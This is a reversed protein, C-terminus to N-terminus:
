NADGGVYNRGLYIEFTWIPQDLRSVVVDRLKVMSQFKTATFDITSRSDAVIIADRGDYSVSQNWLDYQSPLPNFATVTPDHLQFALQAAYNYRTAALFAEPHEAQADSVAAAVEPWGYNAATGDDFGIPAISYNWTSVGILALTMAFHPWLLWRRALIRDGVIALAAYAAINWHLLVGTFMSAITFLTTAVLFITLALSRLLNVFADREQAFPLMALGILFFPGLAVALFALYQLADLPKPNFWHGEPRATFHFRLTVFQESLNWWLVPALIAVIVLAALYPHPTRWLLRLPARVALFAAFGLALLVGNYKTLIALGAFVAALYFLLFQPRGSEWRVTFDVLFLIAVLCLFVLLHDHFAPTTFLSIVPLTAFIAASAWFYHRRDGAGLRSSLQWLVGLSGAFSVWTLLRVSFPSWGFIAAVLGQLWAHLPSHDFYSWQLRQGWIWYYAEDGMPNVTIDFWLRQVVVFFVIIQFPWVARHKPNGTSSVTDTM